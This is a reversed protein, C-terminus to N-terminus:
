QAKDGLLALAIKKGFERCKALEEATPVFIARLAEEPIKFKLGKLREQILKPAEGSWGYSGFAAGIKGKVKITTLSSLLDWVPKIADGNITASGVILGDAKEIEDILHPIDIVSLDFLSTKVGTSEAGAVIEEAMKATNGYASAYFILLTKEEPKKEPQQSWKRYLNLYKQPSHRLIPGHSPAIIEIQLPAIKELAVLAYQKFPKIIHDFYYKFAYSFNSVLDDYLREDSYHCGLFDCPFLVKDQPAFTFMTDPWHLFPASIFNLTREGLDISDGDGVKLPQVDKNLFNKLLHEANKSIVVTAGPTEELLYPLAGSHDPETHNIIIYDIQFPHIVEKLNSIFEDKFVEKVTDIVATKEKGKILYANYTTGQPTKMIVDFIRMKPNLVGVWYIGPKIELPQM